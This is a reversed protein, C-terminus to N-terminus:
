KRDELDDLDNFWIDRRVKTNGKPYKLGVWAIIGVVIVLMGLCVYGFIVDM